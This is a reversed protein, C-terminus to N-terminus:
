DAVSLISWSILYENKPLHAGGSVSVRAKGDKEGLLQGSLTIAKGGSKATFKVESGVHLGSRELGSESGAMSAAQNSPEEIKVTELQVPEESFLDVKSQEPSAAEPKRNPTAPITWVGTDENLELLGGKLHEQDILSLNLGFEFSPELDFTQVFSYLAWEFIEELTKGQTGATSFYPNFPQQPRNWGRDLLWQVKSQSLKHKKGLLLDGSIGVNLLETKSDSERFSKLSAPPSIYLQRDNRDYDVATIIFPGGPEIFCHKIAGLLPRFGEILM